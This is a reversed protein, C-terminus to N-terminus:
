QRFLLLGLQQDRDSRVELIEDGLQEADFPFHGLQSRAM